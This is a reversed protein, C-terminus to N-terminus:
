PSLEGLIDPAIKMYQYPGSRSGWTQAGTECNFGQDLTLFCTKDLSFEIRVYSEDTEAIRCRTADAMEGQYTEGVKSLLIRCGPLHVLDSLALTKLREPHTASGAWAKQDKFRYNELRLPDSLLQLVRSRYPSNLHESTQEAFFGIGTEFLHDVPIYWLRVPIFWVPQEMAQARSSFTGSLWTRITELDTPM